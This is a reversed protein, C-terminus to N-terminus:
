LPSLSPNKAAPVGGHALGHLRWANQTGQESACLLSRMVYVELILRAHGALLIETRDDPDAHQDYDDAAAATTRASARSAAPLARGVVGDRRNGAAVDHLGDVRCTLEGREDVDFDACLDRPRTVSTLTSKLLLTVFPCTSARM